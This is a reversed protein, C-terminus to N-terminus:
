FTSTWLAGAGRTGLVPALFGSTSETAAKPWVLWTVIGAVVLTGGAILFGTGMNEDNAQANAHSLLGTCQPTSPPQPCTGASQGAVAAMSKESNANAFFVAGGVLGAAGVGAVIGATIWRVSSPSGSADITSPPLVPIAIQSPVPPPPPPAPVEFHMEVPITEGAQVDVAKSLVNAGQRAEVTHSGPQVDITRDDYILADQGDVTLATGPPVALVLHGTKAAAEAMPKRARQRDDDTASPLSLFKRFHALAEVPHTSNVEALALDWLYKPQPDGAYAQLLASRAREFDGHLFRSIGERYSTEADTRTDAAAAGPSVALVISITSALVRHNM